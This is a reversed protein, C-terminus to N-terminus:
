SWPHTLWKNILEERVSYIEDRTVEIRTELIDKTSNNVVIMTFRDHKERECLIDFPKSTYSQIDETKQYSM